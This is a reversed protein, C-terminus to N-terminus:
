ASQAQAVDRRPSAFRITVRTGHESAFRLEAELQAALAKVLRLGLSEAREPDLSPPLGVGDDGVELVFRERQRGFRVSITGLGRPFAHEVANAVLENIIMGCPIARDLTLLTPEVHLELRLDAAKDAYSAVIHNVLNETYAAFDIRTLDSSRYLQEHILAMSRIRNQSDRFLSHTDADPSPGNQLSLLSSVIQLNNKVRHHVERLLIEKEELSARLQAETEKRSSLNSALLVVGVLHGGDDRLESRSCYVPLPQGERRRFSHEGSVLQALTTDHLIEDVPRGQLQGEAFGLEALAIRNCTDIRGDPKVVILMENMSQIINDLYSRSVTSAELDEVMANFARGLHGIETRTRLRVRTDLEGRGVRAAAQQLEAVPRSISRSILLGLVVATLFAAAAVLLNRRNAARHATEMSSLESALASEASKEYARILPLLEDEYHPELEDVYFEDLQESPHYQALHIFRDMLAEYAAYQRELEVLWETGAERAQRATDADRRQQDLEDAARSAKWSRALWEEFEDLSDEALEISDELGLVPGTEHDPQAIERYRAAIIQQAAVQSAQLGLRMEAAGLVEDLSSRRLKTIELDVTDSTAKYLWGVLAVFSAIVLFGLTLIIGLRM